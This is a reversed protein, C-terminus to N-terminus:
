VSEFTSNYWKTWHIWCKNLFISIKKLHTVLLILYNSISPVKMIFSYSQFSLGWREQWIIDMSAISHSTTSYSGTLIPKQTVVHMCIQTRMISSFPGWKLEESVEVEMLKFLATLLHYFYALYQYLCKYKCSCSAFQWSNTFLGSAGDWREFILVQLQLYILFKLFKQIQYLIMQTQFLVM